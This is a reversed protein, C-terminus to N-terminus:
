GARNLPVPQLDRFIPCITCRASLLASSFMAQIEEQEHGCLALANCILHPSHFRKHMIATAIQSKQQGGFPARAFPAQPFKSMPCVLNMGVVYWLCPTVMVTMSLLTYEALMDLFFLACGLHADHMFWIHAMAKNPCARKVGTLLLRNFIVTDDQDSASLHKSPHRPVLHKHGNGEFSSFHNRVAVQETCGLVRGRSYLMCLDGHCHQKAEQEPSQECSAAPFRWEFGHVPFDHKLLRTKTM